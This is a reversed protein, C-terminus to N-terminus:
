LVDPFCEQVAESTKWFNELNNLSRLFPNSAYGFSIESGKGFNGYTKRLNLCPIFYNHLAKEHSVTSSHWMDSTNEQYVCEGVLLPEHTYPFYLHRTAYEM